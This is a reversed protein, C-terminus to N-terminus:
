RNRPCYPQGGTVTIAFKSQDEQHKIDFWNKMAFISTEKRWHKIVGNSDPNIDKLQYVAEQKGDCKSNIAIEYSANNELSLCDTKKSDVSVASFQQQGTKKVLLGLTYAPQGTCSCSSTENTLCVQKAHVAFSVGFFSIFGIISILPKM